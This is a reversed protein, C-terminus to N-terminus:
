NLCIVDDDSSEHQTADRMTQDINNQHNINNQNTNLDGNHNQFCIQKPEHLLINYPQQQLSQPLHIKIKRDIPTTPEVSKPNAQEIPDRIRGEPEKQTQIVEKQIPTPEEAREQAQNQNHDQDNNSILKMLKKANSSSVVLAGDIEPHGRDHHKLIARPCLTVYSCNKVDCKIAEVYHDCTVPQGCEICIAPKGSPTLIISANPIIGDAKPLKSLGAILKSSNLRTDKLRGNILTPHGGTLFSNVRDYDINYKSTRISLHAMSISGDEEDEKTADHGNMQSNEINQEQDTDILQRGGNPPQDYDIQVYKEGYMVNPRKNPIYLEMRLAKTCHDIDALDVEFPKVITNDTEYIDIPNHHRLKHRYLKKKETFTLCCNDCNNHLVYHSSVHDHVLESIEKSLESDLSKPDMVSFGKLCIPCLVAMQDSHKESFHHYIDRQFSSGFDCQPCRYPCEHQFHKRRMHGLFDSRNEFRICCILCGYKATITRSHIMQSHERFDLEEFYKFCHHCKFKEINDEVIRQGPVIRRAEQTHMLAHLGFDYTEFMLDCNHCLIRLDLKVTEQQDGHPNKENKLVITAYFYEETWVFENTFKDSITRPAPEYDKFTLEKYNKSAEGYAAIHAVIADFALKPTLGFLERWQLEALLLKLQECAISKSDFGKFAWGLQTILYGFATTKDFTGNSSIMQNRTVLEIRLDSRKNQLALFKPECVRICTGSAFWSETLDAFDYISTTPNLLGLRTNDSNPHKACVIYYKNLKFSILEIPHYDSTTLNELPIINCLRFRPFSREIAIRCVNQITRWIANLILPELQLVNSLENPAICLSWYYLCYLVKDLSIHKFHSFFTGTLIPMTYISCNFSNDCNWIFTLSECRATMPNKCRQCIQRHLLDNNLMWLIPQKDFGSEVIHEDFQIIAHLASKLTSPWSMPMPVLTHSYCLRPGRSVFELLYRNNIECGSFDLNDLNKLEGRISKKILPYTTSFLKVLEVLPVNNSSM